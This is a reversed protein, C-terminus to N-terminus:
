DAARKGHGSWPDWHSGSAEYSGRMQPGTGRPGPPPPPPANPGPPVPVGGFPRDFPRAGAPPPAHAGAAPKPPAPKSVRPNRLAHMDRKAPDSLTVHAEGARQFAETAGPHRNKDPHVLRSLHQFAKKAEAATCTRGVGLVEFLDPADLVRRVAEAQAMAERIEKEVAAADPTAYMSVSKATMRLAGEYDGAELKRRAAQLAQEAGDRNAISGM